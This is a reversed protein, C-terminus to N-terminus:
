ASKIHDYIAQVQKQYDDITKIGQGVERIDLENFEKLSDMGIIKGVNKLYLTDGKLYARQMDQWELQEALNLPIEENKSKVLAIKRLILDFIAIESKYGVSNNMYENIEEGFNNPMKESYKTEIMEYTSSSKKNGNKELNDLELQKQKNIVDKKDWFISALPMRMSEIISNKNNLFIEQAMKETVAENLSRFIDTDPKGIQEKDWYSHFGTKSLRREGALNMGARKDTAAAFHLGEHILVSISKKKSKIGDTETNYNATASSESSLAAVNEFPLDEIDIGLKKAHLKVEHYAIQAVEQLEATNLEEERNELDLLEDSGSENELSVLSVKNLTEESLQNIEDEIKNLAMEEEKKNQVNFVNLIQKLLDRGKDIVKKSSHSIKDYVGDKLKKFKETESISPAEINEQAPLEKDLHNDQNFNEKM